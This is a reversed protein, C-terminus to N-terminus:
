EVRSRTSEGGVGHRRLLHAVEASPPKPDDPSLTIEDTAAGADLLTEVTALWDAAPDHRPREGSGVIAWGLPTSSWRADRADLDAGRDLLMRVVAASGTYGATHLATAGEDATVDNVPFGLDLALAIAASNGTEAARAVARGLVEGLGAHLGPSNALVREAGARDAQLCALLLRDADSADESLAM